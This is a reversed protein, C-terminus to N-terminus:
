EFCGHSQALSLGTNVSQWSVMDVLTFMFEPACGEAGYDEGIRQGGAGTQKPKQGADAKKLKEGMLAAGPSGKLRRLSSVDTARGERTRIVCVALHLKFYRWTGSIRMERELRPRAGLFFFLFPTGSRFEIQPWLLAYM